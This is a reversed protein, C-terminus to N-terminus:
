FIPDKVHGIKRINIVYTTIKLFSTIVCRTCGFEMFANNVFWYSSFEFIKLCPFIIGDNNRRDDRWIKLKAINNVHGVADHHTKTKPPSVNSSRKLDTPCNATSGPANEKLRFIKWLRRMPLTGRRLENALKWCLIACGFECVRVSFEIVLM